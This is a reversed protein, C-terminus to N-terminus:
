RPRTRGWHALARALAPRAQAADQLRDGDMWAEIADRLARGGAEAGDPHGHVGGGAQVVVDHGYLDLVAPVLGPHLGGSTVPFAPRKNGWDQALVPAAGRVSAKVRAARLAATSALVEDRPSVLKGVVTGTHLQDVGVLRLLKAFAPMSMGHRADKTFMAHMARHAHIALGLDHAEERLTMLSGWGTVVVDIMAYEWGHEALLRMRKRAEDTEATVNLLASKAEGTDAEVRDRAKTMRTVRDAFRNFSQSTLNEDDKVLDIGGRWAEVGRQTHEAATWGLKPKPVTATLPRKPVALAKRLGAVGLGPGRFGRMYWAPLAVDELRLWKVAKMGFINGAIGSLLQAINGPEWLGRPFAVWALAGGHGARDAARKTGVTGGVRGGAGRTRFATAKLSRIRDPLASLETWTGVSAESAIRGLAEPLSTGREPTVRYLVVIDDRGPRAGDRVFEHYWDAV